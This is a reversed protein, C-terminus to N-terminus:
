SASAARLPAAAAAGREPRQEAEPARLFQEIAELTSPHRMIRFHGLGRTAVLRSNPWRAAVYRAHMIPLVPDDEDHMILTPVAASVDYLDEWRWGLPQCDDLYEDWILQRMRAVIEKSLGFRVGFEDTHHVLDSVPSVLVNREALTYRSVGVITAAGLSHGVFANFPGLEDVVKRMAHVWTMATTQRVQPEGHAPGLYTSVRWGAARLTAILPTFITPSVGWGHVLLVSRAAPGDWTWCQLSHHKFSVTRREASEFLAKEERKMKRVGAPTIYLSKAFRAAKHPAVRGLVYGGAQAARMLLANM